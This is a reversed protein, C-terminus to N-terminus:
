NLHTRYFKGMINENLFKYESNNLKSKLVDYKFQYYVEYYTLERKTKCQMLITFKFKDIGDSKVWNQLEKNSSTYKKWDSEKLIHKRNKRGIVKKTTRSWYSKKGIYSKQTNKHEILYVFGEYESIDDIKNIWNVERKIVM